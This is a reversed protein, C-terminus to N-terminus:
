DEFSIIESKPANDTLDELLDLVKVKIDEGDDQILATKNNSIDIIEPTLGLEQAARLRHCGEVALWAGYIDSWIARIKPAGKTSMIKKVNELHQEDFHRHRLIIEM